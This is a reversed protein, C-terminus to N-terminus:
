KGGDEWRPDFQFCPSIDTFDLQDLPDISAFQDRVAEALSALDEPPIPVHLLEAITTITEPPIDKSKSSRVYSM